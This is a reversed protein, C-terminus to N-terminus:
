RWGLVRLLELSRSTPLMRDAHSFSREHEAAESHLQGEEVGQIIKQNGDRRNMVTEIM